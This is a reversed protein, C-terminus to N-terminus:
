LIIITHVVLIFYKLLKKPTKHRLNCIDHAAERYKGTYHCHDRVKCYKKNDDDDTSFGKKCIYCVKQKRHTKKEEKILPIM